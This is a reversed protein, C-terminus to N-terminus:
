TAEVDMFHPSSDPLSSRITCLLHRLTLMRLLPISQPVTDLIAHPLRCQMYGVRICVDQYQTHACMTQPLSTSVLPLQLSRTDSGLLSM